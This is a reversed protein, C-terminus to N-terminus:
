SEMASNNEVLPRGVTEREVAEAEEGARFYVRQRDPLHVSLRM